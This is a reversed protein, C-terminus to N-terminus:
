PRVIQEQWQGDSQWVLLWKIETYMSAAVKLNEFGGRFAHPGKFEVMLNLITNTADPKYWIGNGLRFRLSQTRWGDHPRTAKLYALGETELRNPRKSSQRIRKPVKASAISQPPAQLGYIHQNLRKVSESPNAPLLSV